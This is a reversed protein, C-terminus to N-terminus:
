GGTRPLAGPVAPPLRAKSRDRRGECHHEFLRSQQGECVVAHPGLANRGLQARGGQYRIPGGPPSRDARRELQTRHEPDASATPRPCHRRSLTYPASCAGRYIRKQRVRKTECRQAPWRISLPPTGTAFTQM